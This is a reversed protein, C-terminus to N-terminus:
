LIIYNYILFSSVFIISCNNQIMLQIGFLIDLGLYVIDDDGDVMAIWIDDLIFVWNDNFLHM